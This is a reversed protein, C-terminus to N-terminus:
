IAIMELFEKESLIKVGFKKAKEYKSGPNEGAVLYSTKRSVASSVNGGLMRIKDHAEERSMSELTGTVVFSKGALGSDEPNPTEDPIIKVGAKKLNEIIKINHRDRFFEYISKAVIPGVNPAKTLDEVSAKELNALNKFYISLDRSMEEGIHHIGLSFIFRGLTATKAKRIAKILNDASKEGFRALVSIDDRTLGFIDAAEAVLAEDIFRQVIKKGMGRIDFAKKSAFHALRRLDQAYCRKNACYTAVEGEPRLVSSGCIPCKRPMRFDKEKGTRLNGLVKVVEPIVDGAKQIIVTDGVKLGLRRIEDENHLTARSITSGMVLVPKLVAVPTLRGTRGVQVIIDEVITTAQEAPFKFAIAWRPAKGTYGLKKQWDNRNLKIVIGDIWYDEKERIKLADQWAIIVEEINKCHRWSKNVKFGLNKLKELEESQTKPLPFNGAWSLDYTFCDLHRGAAIKSDLQRIAGAAANRPNAFLPEGKQAREKNLKELVSKKMFVEGEAVLDIGLVRSELKLPISEITKLNQTVDEGIKGDGRTAGTKLFGKEYTLVIHLGDIKLEATYDPAVNEPAGNEILWKKVRKDFQRIEEADFADNFSWQPVIHAVKKFAPLPKGGIRQTPSDPAIFEPYKQELEYLERKLSDLAADSIEVKDLVHYLYRHHNIEKKLKEIRQRVEQKIM